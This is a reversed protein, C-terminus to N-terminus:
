NAPSVNAGFIIFPAAVVYVVTIVLISIAGLSRFPQNKVDVWGRVWKWSGGVSSALRLILSSVGYLWTWLSAMFTSYFWVGLSPLEVVYANMGKFSIASSLLDGTERFVELVTGGNGVILLATGLFLTVSGILASGFADALLVAIAGPPSTRRMVGIVYRTKLLSLFDPLVNLIATAFVVMVILLTLYRGRFQEDVNWADPNM